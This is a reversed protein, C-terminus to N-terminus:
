GSNIEPDREGDRAKKMLKLYKVVGFDIEELNPNVSRILNLKWDRHWNKLQKERAIALNVDNFVEYYILKDIKYKETFGKNLKVYHEVWRRDINNTVGIYLTGSKNTLIYVYYVKTKIM